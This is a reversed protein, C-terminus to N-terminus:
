AGPWAVGSFHQTDYKLIYDVWFDLKLSYRISVNQANGKRQM